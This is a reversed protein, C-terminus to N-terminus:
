RGFPDVVTRGTAPDIGAETLMATVAERTARGDPLVSRLHEAMGSLGFGIELEAVLGDVFSLGPVDSPNSRLDLVPGPLASRQARQGVVEGFAEARAATELNRRRAERARAIRRITAEAEALQDDEAQRAVLDALLEEPSLQVVGASRLAV